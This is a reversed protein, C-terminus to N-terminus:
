DKSIDAHFGIGNRTTVRIIPDGHKDVLGTDEEVPEPNDYVETFRTGQENYYRIVWGDLYPDPTQWVYSKAPVVKYARNV